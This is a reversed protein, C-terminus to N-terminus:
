MHCVHPAPLLFNNWRERAHNREKLQLLKSPGLPILAQPKQISVTQVPPWDPLVFFRCYPGLSQHVKSQVFFFSLLPLPMQKDWKEEKGPSSKHNRRCVKKWSLIRSDEAYDQKTQARPVKGQWISLWKSMCNKSEHCVSRQSSSAPTHSRNTGLFCLTNLHHTDQM